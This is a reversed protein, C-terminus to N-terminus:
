RSAPAQLVTVAASPAPHSGKLDGYLQVAGWGILALAVGALMKGADEVIGKLDNIDNRIDQYREACLEEHAEIKAYAGAVTKSETMAVGIM